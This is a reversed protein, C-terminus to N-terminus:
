AFTLDTTVCAYVSAPNVYVLASHECECLWINIYLECMKDVFKFCIKSFCIVWKEVIGAIALSFIINM